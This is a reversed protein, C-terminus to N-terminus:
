SGGRGVGERDEAAEDEEKEDWEGRTTCDYPHAWILIVVSCLACVACALLLPLMFPAQHEVLCPLPPPAPFMSSRIVCPLFLFSRLAPQLIFNLCLVIQLMHSFLIHFPVQIRYPSLVILLIVIGTGNCVCNPRTFM